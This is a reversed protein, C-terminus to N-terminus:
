SPLHFPLSYQKSLKLYFFLGVIAAAESRACAYRPTTCPRILSNSALNAKASHVSAVFFLFCVCFLIANTVGLVRLQQARM